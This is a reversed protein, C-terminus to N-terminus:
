FAWVTVNIAAASSDGADAPTGRPSEVQLTIVNAAVTLVRADLDDSGDSTRATVHADFFDVAETEGLADTYTAGWTLTYLGAGTRTITPKEGNSSGWQSRTAIDGPAVPTGAGTPFRVIAKPATRTLHAVDEALRNWSDASVQTRANQLPGADDKEGGYTDITASAAM